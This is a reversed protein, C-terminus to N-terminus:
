KKKKKSLTLVRGTSGAESQLGVIPVFSVVSERMRERCKRKRRVGPIQIRESCLSAELFGAAGSNCCNNKQRFIKVKGKEM